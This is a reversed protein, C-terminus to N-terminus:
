PPGDVRNVCNPNALVFLNAEVGMHVMDRLFKMGVSEALRASGTNGRAIVAVIEALQLDEWGYRLMARGAEVGYGKSWASKKLRITIEVRPQEEDQITVSRLDCIGILEEAGLYIGFPGMSTEQHM